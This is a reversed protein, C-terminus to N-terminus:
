RASAVDLIRAGEKGQLAPVLHSEFTSYLGQVAHHDLVRRRHLPPLATTAM